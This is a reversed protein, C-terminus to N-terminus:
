STSRREARSAIARPMGSFIRNHVPLLVYWYLLGPLGAPHFRASSILTCTDPSREVIEFELSAAGPLKMEAVLTLRKKPEVGVVRWFDVADGRRLERPHRRGRRMGVGGVIRDLLGRARWLFNAYYYGRNGGISSILAWVTDAPADIETRVESGKPYYSVDPNYGRFALAGETWRVPLPAVREAHLAATVAERYTHLRIPILRRMEGDDAPLDHRLGDILPRAVSAPVSTVLDLWYSSLRPTLVPLPLILRRKGTVEAFQRLLDAYSLMEPGGVDFMRGATEPTDAVACLYEILDELAIPQSRSHVWRPTTMVPLHNVLDRIVEFAASGPGVVMGARLETVPVGSARLLDGTESRSALHISPDLPPQIGGLYVIRRVGARKAVASFNRAGARDREAFDGGLGMSHVLYYAIDIGETAPVLTEPKLVDADRCEVGPWGRAVLVSASRAVARVRHGREVLAPVLHSGIYGSAGAVLVNM